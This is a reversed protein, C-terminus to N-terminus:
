FNGVGSLCLGFASCVFSHISFAEGTLFAKMLHRRASYEAEYISNVEKKNRQKDVNKQFAMDSKAFNIGFLM